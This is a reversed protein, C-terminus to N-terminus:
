SSGNNERYIDPDYGLKNTGNENDQDQDKVKDEVTVQSVASMVGGVVAAYGAISIVIAPLAVPAALISGSIALLILGINRLTKFFKPTPAKARQLINM